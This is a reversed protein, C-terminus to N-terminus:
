KVLNIHNIIDNETMQISILYDIQKKRNDFKLASIQLKGVKTYSSEVLHM